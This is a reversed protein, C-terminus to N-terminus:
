AASLDAEARVPRLAVGARPDLRQHRLGAGAAGARRWRPARAAPRAAPCARRTTRIARPATMPTRAPSTTPTSAWTSARRGARRRGGGAAAVLAADTRAPPTTATSGRAPAPRCARRHRVPEQGRLARRGATRKTTGADVAAARKRARDAVIDTFANVKPESAAIRALAAEVVAVAKVTGGAVARAIESATADASIPNTESM